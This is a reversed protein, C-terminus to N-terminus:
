WGRRWPGPARGPRRAGGRSRHPSQGSGAVPWCGTRAREAHGAGPRSAPRSDRPAAARPRSGSGAGRAAPVARSPPGGLRRGATRVPLARHDAARAATRAAPVRHDLRGARSPGRDSPRHGPRGAAPGRAGGAAGGRPSGGGGPHGRRDGPRPLRSWAVPRSGGRADGCGCPRGRRATVASRGRRARPVPGPRAGRSRGPDCLWLRRPGTATSRRGRQHGRQHGREHGRRAGQPPEGRLGAADRPREDAAGPGVGTRDARGDTGGPEGATAPTRACRTAEPRGAAGAQRRGHGHATRADCVGDRDEAAVEDGM